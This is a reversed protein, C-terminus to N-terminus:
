ISVIMISGVDHLVGASAYASGRAQDAADAPWLLHL